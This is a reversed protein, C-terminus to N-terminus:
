IKDLLITLKNKSLFGKLRRRHNRRQRKESQVLRTKQSHQFSM